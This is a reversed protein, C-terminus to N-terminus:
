ILNRQNILPPFFTERVVGRYDWYRLFSQMNTTTKTELTLCVKDLDNCEHLTFNFQQEEIYLFFLIFIWTLTALDVASFFFIPCSFQFFQAADELYFGLFSNKKQWQILTIFILCKKFTDAHISQIISIKPKWFLTNLIINTLYNTSRFACQVYLSSLGSAIKSM